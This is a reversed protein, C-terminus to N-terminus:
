TSPQSTPSKDSTSRVRLSGTDAPALGQFTITPATAWKTPVPKTLNRLAPLLGVYIWFVDYYSMSLAAGGVCYGVMSVQIMRTLDRAWAFEPRNRVAKQIRHINLFVLGILLVYLAFGIFGQEGLVQFFISHAAGTPLGPFYFNYVQPLQPGAFGAGFPFHDRAYFYAVKWSTVRSQLDVDESANSLTFLRDYFSEPMFYFTPVALVVAVIAYLLKNRSRFWGFVCLAGAAVYGGRSYSGIVSLFTLAFGAMLALRVWRNATHLRLYNVLPLSMLLAVALQNNDAIITDHPGSIWKTGGTMLTLLGGKTGWYMLSIALIWILAHIRLETTAMAGVLLGLALVRWTRDWLPWSWDPDVAFFSNFTMWVFFMLVAVFTTDFPPLKREKSFFWALLTVIGVVLNLRLVDTIGYAERNPSM